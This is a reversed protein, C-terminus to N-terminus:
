RRRTKRNKKRNNRSKRKMKRRYGGFSLPAGIRACETIKNSINPTKGKNPCDSKHFIDTTHTGSKKGCVPCQIVCGKKGNPAEYESQIYNPEFTISAPASAPAPSAENRDDFYNDLNEQSRNFLDINHAPARSAAGAGGAPMSYIIAPSAAAGAGGINSPDSDSVICRVLWEPPIRPLHVVVEAMREIPLHEELPYTCPRTTPVRDKMMTIINACVRYKHSEPRITSNYRLVDFYTLMSRRSSMIDFYSGKDRTESSYVFTKEPDIRIVALARTSSTIFWEPSNGYSSEFSTTDYNFPARFFILDNHKPDHHARSRNMLELEPHRRRLENYSLIGESCINKSKSKTFILIGRPSEPKLICVDENQFLIDSESM